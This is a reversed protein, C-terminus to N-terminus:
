AACCKPSSRTCVLPRGDFYIKYIRNQATAFHFVAGARELDAGGTGQIAAHSLARPRTRHTPATGARWLAKAGIERATAVVEEVRNWDDTVRADISVGGPQKADFSTLIDGRGFGLSCRRQEELRQYAIFYTEVDARDGRIDILMNGVHHTSATASLCGNRMLTAVAAEKDGRSRGHDDYSDFHYAQAILEEDLATLAVRTRTCPRASKRATSCTSYASESSRWRLTMPQRQSNM